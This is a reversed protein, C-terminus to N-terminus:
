YFCFADFALPSDNFDFIKTLFIKAGDQWFDKICLFLCFFIDIDKQRCELKFFAQKVRKVRPRLHGIMLGHHNAGYGFREKM